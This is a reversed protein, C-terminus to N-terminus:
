HWTQAGLREDINVKFVVSYKINLKIWIRIRGIVLYIKLKRRVELTFTWVKMGKKRGERGGVCRLGGRKEGRSWLQGTGAICSRLGVKVCDGAAAEVGVVVDGVRCM